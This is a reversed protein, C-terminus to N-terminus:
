RRGRGDKWFYSSPEAVSELNPERRPSPSRLSQGLPLPRPPRRAPACTWIESNERAEAAEAGELAAPGDVAVVTRCGQLGGRGGGRARGSARVRM